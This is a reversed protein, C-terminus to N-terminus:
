IEQDADNGPDLREARSGVRCGARNMRGLFSPTWTLRVNLRTRIGRGRANAAMTPSTRKTPATPEQDPTLALEM